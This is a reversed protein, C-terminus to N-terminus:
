ESQSYRLRKPRSRPAAGRQDPDGPGGRRARHGGAHLNTAHCPVRCPHGSMFISSTVIPSSSSRPKVMSVFAAYRARWRASMPTSISRRVVTPSSAVCIAAATRSPRSRAPATIVVPPRPGVLSSRVLGEMATSNPRSIRKSSSCKAQIASRHRVRKPRSIGAALRWCAIIGSPAVLSRLLWPEAGPMQSSSSRPRQTAM